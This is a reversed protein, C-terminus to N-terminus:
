VNLLLIVNFKAEWEVNVQNLGELQTELHQVQRVIM